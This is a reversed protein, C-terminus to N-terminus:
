LSREAYKAVAETVMKHSHRVLVEEDSIHLAKLGGSELARQTRELTSLDEATIANIFLRQYASMLAEAYDNPATFYTNFEFTMRNFDDPWYRFALYGTSFAHVGFNPFIVNGDFYANKADSRNFGPIREPPAGARSMAFGIMAAAISGPKPLPATESNVTDSFTGRRHQGMLVYDLLRSDEASPVFDSHLYRAHYAEQFADSVVMWNAKIKIHYRCHLRFREFPYPAFLEGFEGLFSKLDQDPEGDIWVFVFGRWIDLHIPPLRIADKDLAPFSQPDTLHALKGDSSFAWGHFPCVMTRRCNGHESWLLENGRHPCVNHMARVVGDRGRIILIGSEVTPIRKVIYDGDNPIEEIRAVNLWTRRFVGNIYNEHFTRSVYPEIPLTTTKAGTYAYGDAGPRELVTM